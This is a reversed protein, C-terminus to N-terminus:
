MTDGRVVAYDPVRTIVTEPRRSSRDEIQPRPPSSCAVLGVCLLGLTVRVSIRAMASVMRMLAAVDALRDAAARGGGAGLRDMRDLPAPQSGAEARGLCDAGRAPLLPRRSRGGLGPRFGALAHRGRWLCHHVGQVPDAHLRGGARDLLRIRRVADPNPRLYRRLRLARDVADGGGAGLPGTRLRCLWRARFLHHDAAGTAVLA